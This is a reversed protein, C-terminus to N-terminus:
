NLIDVLQEDRETQKSMADNGSKVEVFLNGDKEPHEM